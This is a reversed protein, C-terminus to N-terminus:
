EKRNKRGKLQTRAREESMHTDMAINIGREFLVVLLALQGVTELESRMPAIDFMMPGLLVGALIEGV